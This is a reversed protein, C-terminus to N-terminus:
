HLNKCVVERLRAINLPKSIYETCGAKLCKERDDVMSYATQAIIPLDPSIKKIETLVEYGNMGPLQIDLLVLKIDPNLNFLRIAEKGTKARILELPYLKLSADILLYSAEDDEVVLIKSTLDQM